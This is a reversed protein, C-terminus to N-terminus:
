ANFQTLHHDLHKYMGKGWQDSTLRGFFSHRQKAIVTPGLGYFKQVAEKLGTKEKEFDREGAMVFTPHTPSNRGTPKDNYFQPKFAWGLLYGILLRKPSTEGTAAKLTEICHAMMQAANMKGWAPESQAALSDIRRLIEDKPELDFLNKM